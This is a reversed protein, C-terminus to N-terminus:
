EYESAKFGPILDELDREHYIKNWKGGENVKVKLQGYDSATKFIKKERKLVRGFYALTKMKPSLNENIYLKNGEQIGFRSHDVDNISSYLAIVKNRLKRTAFRVIVPKPGRKAPLRHIADINKETIFNDEDASSNIIEIFCGKM